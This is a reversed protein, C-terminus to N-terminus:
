GGNLRNQHKGLKLTIPCSSHCKDGSSLGASPPSTKVYGETTAFRRSHPCGTLLSQDSSTHRICATNQHQQKTYNDPVSTGHTIQDPLSLTVEEALWSSELTARTPPAVGASSPANDRVRNLYSPAPSGAGVLSRTDEHSEYRLHSDNGSTALRGTQNTLEFQISSADFRNSQLSLVESWM